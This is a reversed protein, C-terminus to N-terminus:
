SASHVARAAALLETTYHHQPASLVQAVEGVEVLEGDRMVAVRHAFSRVSDLDHTIYLYALGREQQLRALLALVHQQIAPDLASVAEDCVVLAPDLAIARAIGVRQCQGGSLQGPYRDALEADLEVEEMLAVARARLSAGRLETHISLPEAISKWVRMRPDLASAPDQFVMALHRRLPRASREPLALWDDMSVVASPRLRVQGTAQPLLKMLARGVTSKGSGSEGVLALTEGAAIEFSVARVAHTGAGAARGGPPPYHVDLDEVELVAPVDTGSNCDGVREPHEAAAVLRQSAEAQPSSFLQEPTATEVTRGADMVVVRECLGRILQLDHSIWLMALGRQARIRSLLALIQQQVTVDLATTPEDAILLEPEGALAAAILVRQRQGGSLQHPYRRQLQEPNPLEVAAFLEVVAARREARTAQPRHVRLVEEVQTGVRLVPNLASYPDQFVYAVRGGRFRRLEREALGILEEGRYRVSGGAVRIAHPQLGLLALGTLSKGSGSEGVLGVAEGPGVQFSASVVVDRSGAGEGVALRLDEVELLPRSEM